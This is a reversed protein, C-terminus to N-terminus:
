GIVKYIIIDVSFFETFTVPHPLVKGQIIAYEQAYYSAYYPSKFQLMAYYTPSFCLTGKELLLYYQNQLLYHEEGLKNALAKTKLPLASTYQRPIASISHHARSSLPTVGEM